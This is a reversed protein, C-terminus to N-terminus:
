IDCCFGNFNLGIVYMDINFELPDYLDAVILLFASFDFKFSM